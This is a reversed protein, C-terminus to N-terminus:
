RVREAVLSTLCKPPHIIFHQCFILNKIDDNFALLNFPTSPIVVLRGADPSDLGDGLGNPQRPM